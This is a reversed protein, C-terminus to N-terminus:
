KGFDSVALNDQKMMTNLVSIDSSVDWARSQFLQDLLNRFAANINDLTHEIERQTEVMKDTKLTEKDIEMYANLLKWTTPLYYNMLRRLEIAKGPQQEVETLLRRVVEELADLKASVAEGPLQDNAYRIRKLYEEGQKMIEIGATSMGAKRLEEERPDAKPVDAPKPAEEKQTPTYAYPNETKAVEGRAQLTRYHAFTEDSTIFEDEEDTFHGQLFMRKRMMERLDKKVFEEDQGVVNALASISIVTKNGLRKVYKKFRRVQELDKYSAAGRSAGVALLAGGFIVGMFGVPLNFLSAFGMLFGAGALGYSLITKFVGSGEESDMNRYLRPPQWKLKQSMIERTASVVSRLGTTASDIISQIRDIERDSLM